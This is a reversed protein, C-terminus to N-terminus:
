TLNGGRRSKIALALRTTPLMVPSAALNVGMYLYSADFPLRGIVEHAVTSKGAGDIGILAVSRGIQEPPAPSARGAADYNRMQTSPGGGSHVPPAAPDVFRSHLDFQTGSRPYIVGPPGNLGDRARFANCTLLM